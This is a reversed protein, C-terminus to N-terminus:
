RPALVFLHCASGLLRALRRRRALGLRRGLLMNGTYFLGMSADHLVSFGNEAFHRRWWRPHFLWIESVVNGREGHRHPFVRGGVNYATAHWAAALRGLEPRRPLARPLLHPLGFLLYLLADPYGTLLSWFRWSHTPLVHICTGRARLVRRIELHMRELSRVHELVNSSFVVDVSRDPLPLTSGDYDIVPFVRHAAYASGAIEVATVEFGRRRLALAQQGIGAGLELIRSGPALFPVIRDIEATRIADLQELSFVFAFRELRGGANQGHNCDPVVVSM